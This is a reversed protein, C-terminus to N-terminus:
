TAPRPPSTGPTPPRVEGAEVRAWLLPHRHHLDLADAMLAAAAYPSRGIRAGLEAAAFESVEPTGAGGFQRARERGPLDSAPDLRAPDHVVAWQYALRLLNVETDRITEACSEAHALLQDESMEAVAQTGLM